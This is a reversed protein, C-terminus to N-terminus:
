SLLRNQMAYRTLDATSHLDLTRMLNRRHTIATDHSINLQAAIQASTFGRAILELVKRQRATLKHAVPQSNVKDDELALGETREGYGLILNEIQRLLGAGEQKLRKRESIDFHTGALRLPKGEKDQSVVKGRSLVWVWHGDKHRLRHESEFSSTEGQLHQNLAAELQPLDEAHVIRKWHDIHTMSEAQTYGLISYWRENLALVGNGVEWNWMGLGSASVALELQQSSEQIQVEMQKRETINIGVGLMHAPQGQANRQTVKGQVKVWIWSGDKHRM